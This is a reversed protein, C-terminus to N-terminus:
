SAFRRRIEELNEPPSSTRPDLIGNKRAQVAFGPATTSLSKTSSSETTSDHHTSTKKSGKTNGMKDFLGLNKRTLRVPESTLRTTRARKTRPEPNDDSDMRQEDQTPLLEAQSLKPSPQKKDM